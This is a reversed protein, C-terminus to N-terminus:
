RLKAEFVLTLGTLFSVANNTFGSPALYPVFSILPRTEGSLRIARLVLGLQRHLMNPRESDLFATDNADTWGVFYTGPATETFPVSLGFVAGGQEPAGEFVLSYGTVVAVAIDMSGSRALFPVCAILPRGEGQERLAAIAGGVGRMVMAPRPSPSLGTDRTDTWGVFYTSSSTKTVPLATGAGCVTVVGLLLFIFTKM